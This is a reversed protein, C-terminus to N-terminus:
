TIHQSSNTYFLGSFAEQLARCCGYSAVYGSGRNAVEVERVHDLYRYYVCLLRIVLQM